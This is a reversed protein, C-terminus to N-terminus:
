FTYGFGIRILWPRENPSPENDDHAFDWLFSMYMAVRGGARQVFGLGAYYGTYADEVTTYYGDDTIGIYEWNLREVEAKLYIPDFVYFRALLSGGIDTTSLDPEYRKDKRYRFTLRTGLQFARSFRYSLIPSIEVYSTESGFAVGFLGGAFWPYEIAKKAQIQYEEFLEQYTKPEQSEDEEQAPSTPPEHPEQQEQSAGPTSLALCCLLAAFIKRSTVPRHYRLRGIKARHATSRFLHRPRGRGESSM